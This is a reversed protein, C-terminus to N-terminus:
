YHLSFISSRISVQHFAMGKIHKEYWALTACLLCLTKRSCSFSNSVYFLVISDYGTGTPSELLGNKKETLCKLVQAMYDKQCEYPEYPFDVSYGGGFEILPM